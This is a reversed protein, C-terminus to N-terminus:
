RSVPVNILEVGEIEKATPARAVGKADVVEIGLSAHGGVIVEKPLPVTYDGGAQASRVGFPAFTALEKGDATSIRLAVGKPLTGARVRLWAEEGPATARPLALEVRKAGNGDAAGLMGACAGCLAVAALAPAFRKM